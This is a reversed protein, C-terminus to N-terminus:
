RSRESEMLAPRSEPVPHASGDPRGAALYDLFQCARRMGTHEELTRQRAREAMGCLEDDSCGLAATVEDATRVVLVEEGPTFFRDLGEFWDTVIPTGCSAAEFFRGSPCYGGRAAMGDRTLNLTLRSSSYLAAHDPPAVHEFRRVNAPWRWQWPYLSGALVFQLNPMSQAPKLLLEELQNQRDAAYTGMYSLDCRFEPRLAGRKHVEPDVCGYLARARRAGWTEELERLIAGGTFSLYLDFAAIQDRRLYDLNGKDLGALTIPTDLDYFVHLPGSLALLDDNIHAGRPVYSGTLVVDCGEAEALAARRVEDWNRYLVLRSYECALFDRRQAYYDVDQEYFVVEHGLRHLARLIARYPTAHGNGWSSSLTLGFITIKL